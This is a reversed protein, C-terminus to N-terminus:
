RSTYVKQQISVRASISEVEVLALEEWEENEGKSAKYSKREGIGEESRGFTLRQM